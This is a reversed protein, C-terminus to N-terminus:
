SSVDDARKLLGRFGSFTDSNELLRPAALPAVLANSITDLRHSCLYNGTRGPLIARESGERGDFDGRASGKIV